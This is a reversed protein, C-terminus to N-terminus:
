EAGKKLAERVAEGILRGLDPALLELVVPRLDPWRKRLEEILRQSEQWHAVEEPSARLRWERTGRPPMPPEVWIPCDPEFDIGCAIDCVHPKRGNPRYPASM